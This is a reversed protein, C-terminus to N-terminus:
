TDWGLLNNSVPENAYGLRLITAVRVRHNTSQCLGISGSYVWGDSKAFIPMITDLWVLYGSPKLMRSCLKVVKAKNIKKTGYDKYHEDYPPDAQILDFKPLHRPDMTEADALFTPHAEDRIDLTLENTTAPISGSFLHLVLGYRYEENFLLRMRELYSPPYAGFLSSKNHYNNGVLWFGIVKGNHLILPSYIGRNNNYYEVNM